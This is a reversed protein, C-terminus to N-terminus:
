TTIKYNTIKIKIKYDTIQLRYDTPNHQRPLEMLRTNAGPINEEEQLKCIMSALKNELHADRRIV